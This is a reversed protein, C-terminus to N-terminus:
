LTGIPSIQGSSLMTEDDDGDRRFADSMKCRWFFASKGLFWMLCQSNTPVLHIRVQLRLSQLCRFSLFGAVLLRRGAEQCM